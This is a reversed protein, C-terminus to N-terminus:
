SIKTGGAGLSPVCLNNNNMRNRNAQFRRSLVSTILLQHSSFRLYSTSDSHHNRNEFEPLIPNPYPLRKLASEFNRPFNMFNMPFNRVEITEREKSLSLSLSLSNRDSEIFNFENDTLRERNHEVRVMQKAENKEKKKKRTYM